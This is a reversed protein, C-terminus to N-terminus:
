FIPNSQDHLDHWIFVILMFHWIKNEPSFLFVNWFTTQQFKVWCARLMLGLLPGSQEASHMRITENALTMLDNFNVRRMSPLYKLLCWELINKKNKESFLSQCKMCVTEKCSIDFGIKHSFIVFICYFRSLEFELLEFNEIIWFWESTGVWIYTHM